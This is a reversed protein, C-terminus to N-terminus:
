SLREGVLTTHSALHADLVKFVREVLAPSAARVHALAEARTDTTFRQPGFFPYFAPHVDGTLFCEWYDFARVEAANRPDAGLAAGGPLTCLHRLIAGCQTLTGIQPSVLAPVALMPNVQQFVPDNRDALVLSYPVKLWECVIHPALSCAGPSYYLQMM